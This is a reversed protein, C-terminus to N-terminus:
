IMSDLDKVFPNLYLRKFRFGKNINVWINSASKSEIWIM